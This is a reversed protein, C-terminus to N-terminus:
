KRGVQKFYVGDPNVGNYFAHALAKYDRDLRPLGDFEEQELKAQRQRRLTAYGPKKVTGAGKNNRTQKWRYPEPQFLAQVAYPVPSDSPGARRIMSSTPTLIRSPTKAKVRPAKTSFTGMKPPPGRDPWQSHKIPTRQKRTPTTPARRSPSRQDARIAAGRPRPHVRVPPLTWKNATKNKREATARLAKEAKAKAAEADLKAYFAEEKIALRALDRKRHARIHEPTVWLELPDNWSRYREVYHPTVEVTPVKNV